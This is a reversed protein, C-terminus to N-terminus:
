APHGTSVPALESALTLIGALDGYLDAELRGGEPTLVIRDILGRLLTLTRHPRSLSNGRHEM